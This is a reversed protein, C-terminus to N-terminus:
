NSDRHCAPAQMPVNKVGGDVGGQMGPVAASAAAEGPLYIREGYEKTGGGGRINRVSYEGDSM